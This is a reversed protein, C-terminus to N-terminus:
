HQDGRLRREHFVGVNEHAGVAHRKRDGVKVAAIEGAASNETQEKSKPAEKEQVEEM